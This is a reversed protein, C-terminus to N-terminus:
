LKAVEAACLFCRKMWGHGDHAWGRDRSYSLARLAFFDAVHTAGSAAAAALTKPGIVGDVRAGVAEQLLETAEHAGQNVSSDFAAFGLAPSLEDGRIPLWFDHYYIDIADDQTLAAIDVDPYSRKCIGFKTEGGPDQPDNVYGGEIDPRLVFHVAKLFAASYSM